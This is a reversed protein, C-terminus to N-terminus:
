YPLSLRVVTGVGQTSELHVEGGHAETVARVLALGVGAGAGPGSAAFLRFLRPQLSAAIGVNDDRICVICRGAVSEATITITTPRGPVHPAAANRLLESVAGTLQVVDGRVLVEAGVTDNITITTPIGAQARAEDIVTRLSRPTPDIQPPGIRAYRVLARMQRGLRVANREIGQLLDRERDHASLLPELRQQLLGASVGLQRVSEQADHSMAAALHELLQPANSTPLAAPVSGPIIVQLVSDDAGVIAQVTAGVEHDCATRYRRTYSVSPAGEALRVFADLEVDLDLPHGIREYSWATLTAADAELLRCLATNVARYRRDPGLVALAVAGSDWLLSWWAADTTTTKM